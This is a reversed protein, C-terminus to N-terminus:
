EVARRELAVMLSNFERNLRDIESAGERLRSFIADRKDSIDEGYLLRANLLRAMENLNGDYSLLNNVITTELMVARLGQERDNADSFDALLRAMEELKALLESGRVRMEAVNKAEDAIANVADIHRGNKELNIIEETRKISEQSLLIIHEAINTSEGRITWFSDPIDPGSISFIQWVGLGLCILGFFIVLRVSRRSM